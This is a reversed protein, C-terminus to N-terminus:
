ETGVGNVRVVLERRGYGGAGIEAEIRARAEEKAGPAVGDELDMIVVDCALERGKQLARANAGPMYLASRRPRIAGDDAPM